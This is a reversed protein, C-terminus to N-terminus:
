MSQRVWVSWAERMKSYEVFFPESQHGWYDENLGIGVAEQVLNKYPDSARMHLVSGWGTVMALNQHDLYDKIHYGAWIDDFRQAGALRVVPAYYMQPLLERLFALNMGCMEFQSHRPVPGQYFKVEPNGQVLQTPADWDAVGIWPGHSLVVKSEYRKAYPFGRPYYPGVLTNFVTTCVSRGLVQLHSAISDGFPRTDDDFTMIVDVEPLERAIYAFGLNRCAPSFKMILGVQSGMVDLAFRIPMEVGDAYDKHHLIQIEGDEITLLHVQHQQFLPDWAALFDRYETQYRITPVVVAIRSM